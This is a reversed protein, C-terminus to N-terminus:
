GQLLSGIFHKNPGLYPRSKKSFTCIAQDQWVDLLIASCRGQARTQTSVVANQNRCPYFANKLMVVYIVDKM